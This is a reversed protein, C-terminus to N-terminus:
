EILLDQLEDVKGILTATPGCGDARVYSQLKDLEMRQACALRQMEANKQKLADTEELLRRREESIQYLQNTLYDTAQESGPAAQAHM